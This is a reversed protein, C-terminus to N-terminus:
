GEVRYDHDREDAQSLLRDVKQPMVERCDRNEDGRSTSPNLFFLNAAGSDVADLAAAAEREYTLNAEATVSAAHNWRRSWSGEHLLVMWNASCRRFM